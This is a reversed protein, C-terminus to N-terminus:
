PHDPLDSGKRVVVAPAAARMSRLALACPGLLMGFFAAFLLLDLM